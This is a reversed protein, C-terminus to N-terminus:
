TRRPDPAGRATRPCSRYLARLVTVTRQGEEGQGRDMKKVADTIGGGTYM